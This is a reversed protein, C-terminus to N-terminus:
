QGDRRDELLTEGWHTDEPRAGNSAPPRLQQTNELPPIVEVPNETEKPLPGPM